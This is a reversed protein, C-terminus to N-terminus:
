SVWPWPTCGTGAGAGRQLKIWVSWTVWSLPSSASEDRRKAGQRAKERRKAGEGGGLTRLSDPVALRNETEFEPRKSNFPRSRHDGTRQIRGDLLKANVYSLACSQLPKEPVKQMLEHGRLDADVFQVQGRQAQLCLARCSVVARYGGPSLIPKTPRPSDELGASAVQVLV